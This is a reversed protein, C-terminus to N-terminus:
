ATRVPVLSGFGRYEAVDFGEQRKFFAPGGTYFICLYCPWPGSYEQENYFLVDLLDSQLGPGEMDHEYADV